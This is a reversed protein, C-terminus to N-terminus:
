EDRDPRDAQRFERGLRVVEKFEPYDAMSGVISALWNAPKSETKLRQKIEAVESELNELRQEYTLPESM